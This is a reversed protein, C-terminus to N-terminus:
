CTDPNALIYAEVAKFMGLVKEKGAQLQEMNLEFDGITYYKSNEKCICGGDSSQEFKVDYTIKELGNTLMDGEIVSHSFTLNDKDIAEIKHKAHKFRSCYTQYFSITIGQGFTVTKITGPGGNGQIIQVKQIAQPLINPILIDADLVLAKYLKSPPISSTVVMEYSIVGM